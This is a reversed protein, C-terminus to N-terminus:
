LEGIRELNEALVITDNQKDYLVGRFYQNQTRLLKDLEQSKAQESVLKESLKKHDDSFAKNAMKIADLEEEKYNLESEIKSLDNEVSSLYEENIEREILLTRCLYIILIGELMAFIAIVTTM